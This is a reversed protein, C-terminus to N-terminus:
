FSYRIAGGYTRPLAPVTYTGGGQAGPIPPIAAGTQIQDSYHTDLINNVYWSVTIRDGPLKIDGTLNAVTFAKQQDLRLPGGAGSQTDYSSTYRASATITATLGSAFDHTYTASGNATFDPSNTTPFGKLDEKGGVIQGGSLVFVAAAPFSTFRSHLYAGGIQLTLNDTPAFQLDAEAGYAKVGAANQQVVTANIPDISAVQVNTSKSHFAALNLRARNDLFKIKTGAEFGDIKEPQLPVQPLLAPSNFGGSKFGKNYSAYFNANGIDYSVVARPTFTSFKAKQAFFAPVFAPPIGFALAVDSNNYDFLTKEDQNFRGGITIKLGDVPEYYLEGFASLTDLKNINDFLPELGGFVSGRVSAPSRAKSNQYYAGLAFNLRGSFSTLFRLEQTFTKDSLGPIGNPYKATPPVGFCFFNAAEYRNDGDACGETKTDRYGTTSIATWTDRNLQMKLTASWVEGRTPKFFSNRPGDPTQMTEDPGLGTPTGTGDVIQRRLYGVTARQYEGKLNASFEDNPEWLLKARLQMREMQGHKKGDIINTVYGDRNEYGGAVRFALTSSIPINLMGLFKKDDLNGYGGQVYGEFNHTPDATTTVIAGGTANRGYLTGQPGKLVQVQAVDILGATGFQSQQYVDDVYIAVSGELGTGAFGTGRGRIYPNATGNDEPFTLGPTSFQLGKADAISLREIDVSSFASVSIPVKQLNESKRQATVVIDQLGTNADQPAADSANNGSAAQGFAPGAALGLAIVSAVGIQRVRFLKCASRAM